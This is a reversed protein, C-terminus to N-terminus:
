FENLGENGYNYQPQQFMEKLILIALGSNGNEINEIVLESQSHLYGITRELERIKILRKEAAIHSNM